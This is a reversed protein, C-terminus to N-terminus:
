THYAYLLVMSVLLSEGIDLTLCNSCTKCAMPGWGRRGGFPPACPPMAMRAGDLTRTVRAGPLDEASNTGPLTRAAWTWQPALCPM